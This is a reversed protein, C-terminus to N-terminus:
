LAGAGHPRRSRPWSPRCGGASGHAGRRGEARSQPGAGRALAAWARCRRGARHATESLHMVRRAEAARETWVVSSRNGVMPLLAFPGAPLFHQVARGHHAKEHGVTGTIAAQDSAWEVIKFGAMKRLASRQGDAAVLLNATLTGGGGFTVTASAEGLNVGSITEPAILVIDPLTEAAEYLARRLLANEVIFASPEDGSQEANFNLLVSRIPFELKSDTIDMATVPQAQESLGAWIGLADLMQRAAATLAVSRGDFAGGKAEALPMREVVAIRFGGPASKALGCALALGVFSGGGIILDFRQGDMAERERNAAHFQAGLGLGYRM